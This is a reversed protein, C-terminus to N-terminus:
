SAASVKKSTRRKPKEEEEVVPSGEEDLFPVFEVIFNGDKDLEHGDLDVLISKKESVWKVFQGNKNIHKGDRDILRGDDDVLNLDDNVFKYEKLFQNEPLSDDTNESGNLINFLKESAEDAVALNEPRNLQSTDEFCREGNDKYVLCQILLYKFRKDAAIGECTVSDLNARNTLMEVMRGRKIRMEIALDRAELLKIGGKKIRFEADNLEKSITRFEQEQVDSWLGRKKLEVDIQQRLLGNSLLEQNFVRKEIKDAENYQDFTPENVVYERDKVTFKSM